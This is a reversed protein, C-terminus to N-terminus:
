EGERQNYGGERQDGIDERQDYEKTDIMVERVKNNTTKQDM